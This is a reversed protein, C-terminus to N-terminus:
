VVSKRDLSAYDKQNRKDAIIRCAINDANRNQSKGYQAYDNPEVLNKPCFLEPYISKYQSHDTNNLKYHVIDSIFICDPPRDAEQDASYQAKPDARDVVM